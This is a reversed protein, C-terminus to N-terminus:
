TATSSSVSQKKHRARWRKYAYRVCRVPADLWIEKALQFKEAATTERFEAGRPVYWNNCGTRKVLRYGHNVVHRHVDLKQLHDELLLVAPRHRELSFGRLVQLEVGEVDISLLDIKPNGAEALVDDLTRVTVEEVHEVTFGENLALGSYVSGEAAVQFQAKGRQEPAALACQFIRSGPRHEKLSQCSAAIPEVLLGRWGQEEFLWTQSGETPHNAGIEVFYGDKKAGFHRWLILDEGFQSYSQM